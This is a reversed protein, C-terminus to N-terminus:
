QEYPCTKCSEDRGCPLPPSAGRSASGRVIVAAGAGIMRRARGGCDPCKKVPKDSMAQFKEFRHGCDRCEYEYTPM